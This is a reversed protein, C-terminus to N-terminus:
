NLESAADGCRFRLITFFGSVRIARDGANAPGCIGTSPQGLRAYQYNIYQKNYTIKEVAWKVWDDRTGIRLTFFRSLGMDSNKVAGRSRCGAFRKVGVVGQAASARGSGGGRVRSVVM